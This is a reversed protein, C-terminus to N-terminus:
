GTAVTGRGGGRLNTRVPLSAWRLWLMRSSAALAVGIGLYLLGAIGPPLVWMRLARGGGAMVGVLLWTKLSLFGGVCRGDGRDEIRQAIGLAARDLVMWSKGLGIAIAAISWFVAHPLDSSWIWVAGFLALLTGVVSWLLGALVM